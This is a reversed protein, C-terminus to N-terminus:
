QPTKSFETSVKQPQLTKNFTLVSLYVRGTFLVRLREMFSMKWCSVVMGLDDTTKYAPLTIYEKQDEAIKCNTHEFDIPQM